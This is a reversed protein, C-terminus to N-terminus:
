RSGDEREVEEWAVGEATSGCGGCRVLRRGCCVDERWCGGGEGCARAVEGARRGDEAAVAAEGVDAGCVGDDGFAEVAAPAAGEEDRRGLM